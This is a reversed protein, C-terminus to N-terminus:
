VIEAIWKISQIGKRREKLLSSHMYSKSESLFGDNKKKSVVLHAALSNLQM